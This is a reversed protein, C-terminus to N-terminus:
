NAFGEPSSWRVPLVWRNPSQYCHYQDHTRDLTPSGIWFVGDGFTEGTCIPENYEFPVMLSDGELLQGASLAAYITNLVGCIIEPPCFRREVSLLPCWVESPGDSVTYCFCSSDNYASDGDRLYDQQTPLVGVVSWPVPHPVLADFDNLHWMM